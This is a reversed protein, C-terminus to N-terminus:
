NERLLRGYTSGLGDDLVLGHCLGRTVRYTKTVMDVGPGTWSGTALGSNRLLM